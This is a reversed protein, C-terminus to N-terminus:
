KEDINNDVFTQFNKYEQKQQEESKDEINWTHYVVANTNIENIEFYCKLMSGMQGRGNILQTM